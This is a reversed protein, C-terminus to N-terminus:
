HKSRTSFLTVALYSPCCSAQMWPLSCPWGVGTEEKWFGEQCELRPTMGEASRVPQVSPVGLM